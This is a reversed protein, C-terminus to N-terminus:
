GRAWARCPQCRSPPAPAYVAYLPLLLSLESRSKSLRGKNETWTFGLYGLHSHAEHKVMPVHGPPKFTAHDNDSDVCLRGVGAADMKPVSYIGAGVAGSPRLVHLRGDPGARLDSALPVARPLRPTWRSVLLWPSLLLEPSTPQELTKPEMSTVAFHYHPGASLIFRGTRIAAVIEVGVRRFKWPWRCCGM